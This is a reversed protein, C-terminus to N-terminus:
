KYGIFNEVCFIITFYFIISVNIRHSAPSIGVIGGKIVAPETSCCLNKLEDSLFVVEFLSKKLPIGYDTAWVVVANEDTKIDDIEARIWKGKSNMHVTVYKEDNCRNSEHEATPLNDGFEAVYKEIAREIKEVDGNYTNKYKFWFLFPNIVHTIEILKSSKTSM